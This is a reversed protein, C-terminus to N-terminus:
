VSCIHTPLLLNSVWRFTSGMPSILFAYLSMTTFDSRFLATPCRPTLSLILDSRLTCSPHPSCEHSHPSPYKPPSNHVRYNVASSRKIQCSLTRDTSYSLIKVLTRQSKMIEACVGAHDSIQQQNLQTVTALFLPLWRTCIRGEWAAVVVGLKVLRM